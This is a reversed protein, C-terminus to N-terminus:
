NLYVIMANLYTAFSVWLLYPILLVGAVKHVRAFVVMTWVILIWLLVIDFLAVLPNQLGFFLPTWLANVALQAWYVNLAQYEGQRWVIYGTVGILVYLMTWVPGFIWSPPNLAPKSLTAYWGDISGMFFLGLLGAGQAIAIFLVLRCLSHKKM